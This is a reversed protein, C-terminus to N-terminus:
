TTEWQIPFRMATKPVLVYQDDDFDRNVAAMSIKTKLNNNTKRKEERASVGAM